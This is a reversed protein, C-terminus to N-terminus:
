SVPTKSDFVGYIQISSARLVQQPNSGLMILRLSSCPVLGSLDFSAQGDVVDQDVVVGGHGDTVELKLQGPEKYVTFKPPVFRYVVRSVRFFFGNLTLGVFPDPL